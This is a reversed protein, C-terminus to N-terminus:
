LLILLIECIAVYIFPMFSMKCKDLFPCARGGGWCTVWCCLEISFFYLYLRTISTSKYKGLQVKIFKWNKSTILYIYLSSVPVPQSRSNKQLSLKRSKKNLITISQIHCSIFHCRRAQPSPCQMMRMAGTLPLATLQVMGVVWVWNIEYIYIDIHIYVCICRDLFSIVPVPGHHLM